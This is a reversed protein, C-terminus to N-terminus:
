SEYNEKDNESKEKNAGSESPRNLREVLEPNQLVVMTRAALDGLRQRRRTFIVLLAIFAVQLELLRLLNRIIAQKPTLAAGARDLVVLRLTMKGPTTALLLECVMLYLTVLFLFTGQLFLASMTDVSAMPAQVQEWFSLQRAPEATMEPFLVFTVLLAPLLDLFFALARYSLPALQIYDPLDGADTFADARRWYLIVLAVALLAGMNLWLLWLHKERGMTSVALGLPEIPEGNTDYIGLYIQEPSHRKFVALNQEDYEAFAIEKSVATLPRSETDALPGSKNWGKEGPWVLIFQAAPQRENLLGKLSEEPFVYAIVRIQRNVELAALDVVNEVLATETESWADGTWQRHVLVGLANKDRVGHNEIGFLHIEDAQFVLKPKSWYEMPLPATTLSQYPKNKDQYLLLYEGAAVSIEEPTGASDNPDVPTPALAFTTAGSARVLVYVMGNKIVCDVAEFDDPLQKETRAGSTPTYSRSVGNSLFAWLRHDDAALALPRGAYRRFGSFGSKTNKRYFIQFEQTQAKQRFWVVYVGSDNGAAWIQEPYKESLLSVDQAPLASSLSATIFCVFFIRLQNPFHNIKPGYM